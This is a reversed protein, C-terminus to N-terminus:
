SCKGEHCKECLTILNELLYEWPERGSLYEKHHVQLLTNEPSRCRPGQCRWRDRETVNLRVRQWLADRLKQSYTM